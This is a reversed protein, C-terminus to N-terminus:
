KSLHLWDGEVWRVGKRLLKYFCKIDLAKAKEEAQNFSDAKIKGIERGGLTYV